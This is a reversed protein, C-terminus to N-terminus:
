GWKTLFWKKGNEFETTIKSLGASKHIIPIDCVGIKLGAKNCDLCFALDYFHFKAPNSEDFRVRKLSSKTAAIFVGDILTARQNLNGFTTMNYPEHEYPNPNSSHAVCGLLSERPAMLHWLGPEKIEATASGAVGVIDFKAFYLGLKYHIDKCNLYVDDHVFIFATDDEYKDLSTDIFKNYQTSLGSTNHPIKYIEYNEINLDEISREILTPNSKNNKTCIIFVVKPIKM